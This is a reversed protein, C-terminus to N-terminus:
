PLSQLRILFDFGNSLDLESDQINLSTFIWLDEGRDLTVTIKWIRSIRIPVLRVPRGSVLLFM